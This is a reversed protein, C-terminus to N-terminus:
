ARELVQGTAWIHSILAHWDYIPPLPEVVSGGARSRLLPIRRTSVLSHFLICLTAVLVFLTSTLLIATIGSAHIDFRAQMSSSLDDETAEILEAQALGVCCFLAFALAINASLAFYNDSPRKFPAAYVHLILFVLQLALAGFLQILSGHGMFPLAFFSALLLKKATEPLEWWFYHRRYNATLFDLTHRDANVRDGVAQLLQWVFCSADTVEGAGPKLRYHSAYLLLAYLVPVGIPFIIITLSAVIKLQTYAQTDRGNEDTCVLSYDARLYSRGDDFSECNFAQFAPSSVLSFVLFTIWLSSPLAKILQGRCKYYGVILGILVLPALVRLLLQSTFSALGFCQM